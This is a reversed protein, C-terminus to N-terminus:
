APSDHVSVQARTEAVQMSPQMSVVMVAAEKEAMTSLVVERSVSVM